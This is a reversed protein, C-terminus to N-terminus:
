QAARLSTRFDPSMTYMECAEAYVGTEGAAIRGILIRCDDGTLRRKNPATYGPYSWLPSNRQKAFVRRMLNHQAQSIEWTTIQLQCAITFVDSEPNQAMFTLIQEETYQNVTTETNM